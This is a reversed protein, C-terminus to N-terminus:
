AATARGAEIAEMLNVLPEGGKILDDALAQRVLAADGARLADILVLHYHRVPNSLPVRRYLVNLLPATRLWIQELLKVLEPMGSANYLRFHFECGSRIAQAWDQRSQADCLSQHLDALRDIEDPRIRGTAVEGALGELELRIRRLELYQALSLSVVRISRNAVIEIGGERALQLLAERVPTESVAMARALDRIKLREGPWFRGQLLGNRLEAYVREALNERGIPELSAPATRQDNSATIQSAIWGTDAMV